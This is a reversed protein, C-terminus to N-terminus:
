ESLFKSQRDLMEQRASNFGIDDWTNSDSWCPNGESMEIERTPCQADGDYDRFDENVPIKCVPCVREEPTCEKLASNIAAILWAKFENKTVSHSMDAYEFKEEFEQLIEKLTKM